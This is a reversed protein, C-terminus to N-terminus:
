RKPLYTAASSWILYLLPTVQYLRRAQKPANVPISDCRSNVNWFIIDPLKYGHKKYLKRMERFMPEDNGGIICYNFQM